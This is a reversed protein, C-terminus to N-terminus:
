MVFQNRFISIIWFWASSIKDIFNVNAPWFFFLLFLILCWQEIEYFIYILKSKTKWRMSIKLLLYFIMLDSFHRSFLSFFMSVVSRSSTPVENSPLSSIEFPSKHTYATYPKHKRHAIMHMLFRISFELQQQQQQQKSEDIKRSRTTNRKKNSYKRQEFVYAVRAEDCHGLCKFHCNQIKHNIKKTKNTAWASNNNTKERERETQRRKECKRKCNDIM